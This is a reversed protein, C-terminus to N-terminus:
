TREAVPVQTRHACNRIEAETPKKKDRLVCRCDHDLGNICYGCQPV